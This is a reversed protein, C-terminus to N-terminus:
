GHNAVEQGQTGGRAPWFGRSAAAERLILRWTECVGCAEAKAVNQLMERETDNIRLHVVIPRKTKPM